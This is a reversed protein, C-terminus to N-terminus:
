LDNPLSDSLIHEQVFVAAWHEIGDTDNVGPANREVGAVSEFCRSIGGSSNCCSVIHVTIEKDAIGVSKANGGLNHRILGPMSAFNGKSKVLGFGGDGKGRNRASHVLDAVVQRSESCIWPTQGQNLILTQDLHDFQASGRLWEVQHTIRGLIILRTNEPQLFIMALAHQGDEVPGVLTM